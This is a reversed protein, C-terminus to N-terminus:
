CRSLTDRESQHHIVRYIHIHERMKLHCFWINYWRILQGTLKLNPELKKLISFINSHIQAVWDFKWIYIQHNPKNIANLAVKLLIETIDHRDTKNAPSIPTGLSLWRGTALWQCVQDCSTYVFWIMLYINITTRYKWHSWRNVL